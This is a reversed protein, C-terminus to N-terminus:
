SKAGVPKMGLRARCRNRGCTECLMAGAADCHARGREVWGGCDACSPLAAIPRALVEDRLADFPDRREADPEDVCERPLPDMRGFSEREVRRLFDNRDRIPVSRTMARGGGSEVVGGGERSEGLM